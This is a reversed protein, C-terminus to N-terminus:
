ILAGCKNCKLRSSDKGSTKSRYGCKSCSKEFWTKSRKREKPQNANFKKKKQRSCRLKPKTIEFKM